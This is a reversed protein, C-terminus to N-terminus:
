SNSKAGILLVCVEDRAPKNGYDGKADPFQASFKQEIVGQKYVNAKLGTKMAYVDATRVLAYIVPPLFAIRGLTVILLSQVLAGVVLWTQM